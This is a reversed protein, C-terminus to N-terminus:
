TRAELDWYKLFPGWIVVNKLVDVCLVCFSVTTSVDLAILNRQFVQYNPFITHAKHVIHM